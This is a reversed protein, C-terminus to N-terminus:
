KRALWSRANALGALVTGVDMGVAPGLAQNKSSSAVRQVIEAIIGACLADGAGNTHRVVQHPLLPLAALHVTACGSGENVVTSGDQMHASATTAITAATTTTARQNNANSSGEEVAGLPSQPLSQPLPVVATVQKLPGCWVVGRSGLSVVIHKGSVSRPSAAAAAQQQQQTANSSSTGATELNEQAGAGGGLFKDLIGFASKEKKEAAAAHASSASSASSSHSPAASNMVQYLATLLIRVDHIDIDQQGPDMRNATLTSLTSTVLARGSNILGHSLCYNVMQVLESVNPKIIDVQSAYL